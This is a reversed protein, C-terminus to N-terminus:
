RSFSFLLSYDYLSFYSDDVAFKRHILGKQKEGQETMLCGENFALCTNKGKYRKYTHCAVYFVVVMLYPTAALEANM